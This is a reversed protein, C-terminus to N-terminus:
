EKDKPPVATVTLHYAGIQVGLNVSTAVVKYTGAQTATYTIKANMNEGSNDDFAVVKGAPDLLQVYPDVRSAGVKKMEIVYTKGAELKVEHTKSKRGKPGGLLDSAVLQSNVDLVVKPGAPEIKPKPTLDTKPKPDPDTKPKPNVDIKPKPDPDTKPKPDPDTKPKPDPDLKPSPEKNPVFPIIGETNGPVRTLSIDESVVLQVPGVDLETSLRMNVQSLFGGELDLMARGVVRGLPDNSKKDRSKIAGVLSIFAENRGNTSRCGEYTCTLEIDLVKLKPRKGVITPLRAQWSEMPNVQRNPMYILVEENANCFRTMLMELTDKDKQPVEPKLKPTNRELFKGTSDVLFSPSLRSLRTFYQAEIPRLVGNDEEAFKNAGITIKVLPGKPSPTLVELFAAEFDQGETFKDKGQYVTVRNENKIRVTRQQGPDLKMQLNAPVRELPVKAALTSARQWQTVGAGNVLVPQIWYVQGPQLAPLPVDGIAKGNQYAVDSTQRPGDGPQAPPPEFAFPREPGMSGVWVEVRVSQVRGLPDLCECRVPLKAQNNDLFPEGYSSESIRGDLALKVFDAPVAFNIGTGKIIAVAVGVVRGSTDVLPGGSNGPQMNGDLQIQYISGFPNKRLSSVAANGVTINTGLQKGFPFGFYHVKQLEKLSQATTIGLPPPLDDAPVRVVALDTDRDVGAITGRLTKEGPEGSNVVVDVNTPPQSQAQLMGLVHANTIVIGPEVALFGSGESKMGNPLTVQLYVTSRKVRQVTVGDIQDPLPGQGFGEKLVLGPGEGPRFDKQVFQPQLQQQPAEPTPTRLAFYLVVILIVSVVGAVALSGGAVLLVAWLGSGGKKAQRPPSDLRGASRDDDRGGRRPNQVPASKGKPDYVGEDDRRRDGSPVSLSRDCERCRIKKGRMEDAVSNSTDCDPCVIRISM